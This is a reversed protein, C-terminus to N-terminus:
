DMLFRSRPQIAGCSMRLLRPLRSTRCMFLGAAMLASNLRSLKRGRRGRSNEYWSM